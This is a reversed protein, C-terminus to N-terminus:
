VDAVTLVYTTKRTRGYAKAAVSQVFSRSADFAALYGREADVGDFRKQSIADTTISFSIQFMGDHGVFRIRGHDPDYSRSSNPFTLGMTV